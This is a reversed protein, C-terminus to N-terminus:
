IDIGLKKSGFGYPFLDEIRYTRVVGELSSSLIEINGDAFEYIKQRCIGCPPGSYGDLVIALAKVRKDGAIIMADIASTEAHSTLTYIASEINCGTYFNGESSLLAAGVKYNSYPAFAKERAKGALRVLKKQIKNLEKYEKLLNDYDMILDTLCSFIFVNGSDINGSREYKWTEFPVYIANIGAKLAPNVDSKLLNGVKYTKAKDRGKVLDELINPTKNDVIHVEKFWKDLGHCEIKERQWRPDGKTLLILEDGKAKLFDLVEEAGPMFEKKVFFAECGYSKVIELDNESYFRSHTKCFYELTRAFSNPFRNCSFPNAGKEMLKKVAEVDIEVEKDLVSRMFKPNGFMEFISDISEYLIEARSLNLMKKAVKVEKHNSDIKKLIFECLKVQPMFYHYTNYILTDDLDFIFTKM